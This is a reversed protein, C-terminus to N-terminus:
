KGAAEMVISNLLGSVKNITDLNKELSHTKALHLLNYYRIITKGDEESILLKLPLDIAISPKDQMLKTGSQPNGFIILTSSEMNMGAQEANKRHDIISFITIGRNKIASLARSLTTNFDYESKVKILGDVM